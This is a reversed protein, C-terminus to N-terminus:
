HEMPCLRSITALEKHAVALFFALSDLRRLCELQGYIVMLFFPNQTLDLEFKLIIACLIADRTLLDAVNARFHM